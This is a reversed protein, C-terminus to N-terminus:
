IMEQKQQNIKSENGQQIECAASLTDPELCKALMYKSGWLANSMCRTLSEARRSRREESEKEERVARVATAADTWSNSIRSQFQAGVHSIYVYYTYAYACTYM